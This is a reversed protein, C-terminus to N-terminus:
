VFMEAFDPLTLPRPALPRARLLWFSAPGVNAWSWELNSYLVEFVRDHVRRLFIAFSMAFPIDVYCLKIKYLKNDIM